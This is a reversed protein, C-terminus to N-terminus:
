DDDSEDLIAQQKRVNRRQEEGTANQCNTHNTGDQDPQQQRGASTGSRRPSTEVAELAQDADDVM